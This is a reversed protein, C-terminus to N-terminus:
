NNLVAYLYQAFAVPIGAPVPQGEGIYAIANLASQFNNYNLLWEAFGHPAPKGELLAPAYETAYQEFPCDEETAVHWLMLVTTTEM